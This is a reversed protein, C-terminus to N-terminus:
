TESQRSALPERYRCLNDREAVDEDRGKLIHINMKNDLTEAEKAYVGSIDGDAAVEDCLKESGIQV